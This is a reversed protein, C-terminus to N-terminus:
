SAGQGQGHMRPCPDLPMMLWTRVVLTGGALGSEMLRHAERIEDFRFVKAKRITARM